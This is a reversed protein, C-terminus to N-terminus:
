FVPTVNYKVINYYYAAPQTEPVDIRYCVYAVSGSVPGANTMISYATEAGQTVDAIQRACFDSQTTGTCAGSAVNYTFVADTGSLSIGLGYNTTTEWDDEASETCGGDCVTDRICTGSVFTYEGTSPATGTCTNGNKGMQDNEAITVSYGSSANTSVTLKHQANRFNGVGGNATTDLTGWPIKTSVTSSCSGDDCTTVNAANGTGCNTAASAVGEFKFALTEDVTASVLVGEIPAAKTQVNEIETDDANRSMVTITYPDVVGKTHSSTPPAPNVLGKGTGISVTITGGTVANASKCMVTHGTYSSDGIGTVTASASATKWGWSAGTGGSCTVYSNNNGNMGNLDFGNDIYSASTDPAGDNAGSAADPIIVIVGGGAPITGTLTLAATLTGSQTSYIADGDTAGVTIGSTLAFHTSDTISGVTKGGNPGINVTDTPFLHATSNDPNGSSQIAIYSAGATHTGSVKAYYSLRPNSLTTSVSSLSSSIPKPSALFIYSAQFFIFLFLATKYIFRKRM